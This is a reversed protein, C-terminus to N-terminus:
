RFKTSKNFEVLFALKRKSEPEWRNPKGDSPSAM